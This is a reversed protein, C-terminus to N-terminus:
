LAAGVEKAKKLTLVCSGQFGLLNTCHKAEKLTIPGTKEENEQFQKM